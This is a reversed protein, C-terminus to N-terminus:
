TTLVSEHVVLEITARHVLTSAFMEHDFFTLNAPFSQEAKGNLNELGDFRDMVAEVQKRFAEESNLDGEDELSRIGEILITHTRRIRSRTAVVERETGGLTVWWANLVGNSDRLLAEVEETRTIHRTHNFVNEITTVAAIQDKVEKIVTEINAM